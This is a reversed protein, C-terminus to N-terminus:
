WPGLVVRLLPGGKGVFWSESAGGKSIRFGVKPSREERAARIVPARISPLFVLMLFEGEGVGM